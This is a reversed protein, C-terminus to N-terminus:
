NNIIKGGSTSFSMKQTPNMSSFQEFTIQRTETAGSGGGVAGGGTSKNGRLLSKFKENNEFEQKLEDLTSITMAGDKTLVKMGEETHKLRKSIFESLLEADPGDALQNAIKMSETAIKDKANLQHMNQVQQELTERREESSKLLEEFDGDKMAKDLKAQTAVDQEERAKAKAKKTEDLLQDNKGKVADFQQQLDKIMEDREALQKTLDNNENDNNAQDSDNNLEDSM